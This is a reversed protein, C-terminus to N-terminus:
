QKVVRRLITEEDEIKIKFLYYGSALHRIPLTIQSNVLAQTKQLVITGQRDLATIQIKSGKVQGKVQVKVVDSTPNPYLTLKANSLNEALGTPQTVTLTQTVDTAAIYNANGAQSAIIITTGPGVITVKNGLVTAVKADSSTYTITNGSAGGTANLSFTADSVLKTANAGLDFTIAQAAKNVTLVQTTTGVNYNTNGAQNATITATGAGVITVTKGSVKAVKTDSSTYTIANGSAGGTAVLNFAADGFTKAKLAGFTVSQKAKNVTLTQVVDTAVNYTANGAQSATIKTIGASVINVKNGAITAVAPNSSTYTIVNGSAGGTAALNFAADGFAKAALTKFTIKQGIKVTGSLNVQYTVTNLDNSVFTLTGNKVGTSSTNMAVKISTTNGPAVVISTAKGTTTTKIPASVISFDGSATVKTVNLTRSGTNNITFDVQNTTNM